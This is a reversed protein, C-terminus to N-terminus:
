TCEHANWIGKMQWEHAKTHREHAKATCKMHKEQANGKIHREHAKPHMDNANM